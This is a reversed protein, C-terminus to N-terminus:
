DEPPVCTSCRCYRTWADQLHVRLYGQRTGTTGGDVRIKKSKVNYQKLLTAIQRDTVHIIRVGNYFEAWPSEEIAALREILEVTSLKDETGFVVHMDSLLEEHLHMDANRESEHCLARCTKRARDPWDDGALDAIAILSEWTDAARDDVPMDPTAARLESVHTRVWAHLRERLQDLAPTDRRYRFTEVKEGKARRRMPIVVSRDEITDPLDGIGALSVMCFTPLADMQRHIPDWRLYPRGRQHGANIIGRLDEAKDATKGGGSGGFVTDTEDIHLTPPNEPDISHVLAAPSINATSISAHSLASVIDQARTKGCRKEPSKFNLRTAVDWAQQGHTAAIWLTVAVYADESPFIVYRRLTGEVEGLLGSGNLTEDAVPSSAFGAAMDDFESM